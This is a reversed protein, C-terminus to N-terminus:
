RRGFQEAARNHDFLVTIGEGPIVVETM